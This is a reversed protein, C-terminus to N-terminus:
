SRAFARGSFCMLRIAAAPQHVPVPAPLIRTTRGPVTPALAPQHDEAEAERLGVEIMRAVTQSGRGAGMELCRLCTVLAWDRSVPTSPGDDACFVRPPNGPDGYHIPLYSTGAPAGISVM